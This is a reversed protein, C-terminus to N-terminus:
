KKKRVLLFGGQIGSVTKTLKILANNTKSDSIIGVGQLAHMIRAAEVVLTLTDGVLHTTMDATQVNKIALRLHDDDVMWVGKAKRGSISRNFTGDVRFTFSTNQPTVNAREFYDTLLRELKGATANGVAKVLLNGSTALVAPEVYTWTGVMQEASAAKSAFAGKVTNMKEQLDGHKLAVKVSDSIEKATQASVPMLAACLALTLVTVKKM